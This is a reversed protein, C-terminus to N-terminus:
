QGPLSLRSNPPLCHAKIGRYMTVLESVLVPYTIRIAFFRTPFVIRGEFEPARSIASMAGTLLVKRWMEAVQNRVIARNSGMAHTSRRSVLGGLPISHPQAEHACVEWCFYDPRPDWFEPYSYFGWGLSVRLSYRGGMPAFYLTMQCWTKTRCHSGCVGNQNACRKTKM